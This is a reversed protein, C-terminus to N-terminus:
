KWGSAAANLQSTLWSSMSQLKSLALEMASFRALMVEKKRDLRANMQDIRDELDSIRETLSDQKFAVYGEYSDTINFLARDFLEAVGVTLKINGASGTASGTYRIVLGAINAEGKNGTLTQGSGTAAEGNITGSVDLGNETAAQTINVAYEGAKTYNTSYIYEISGSDSTGNACFLQQIDNFNTELLGHLKDSDISLKGDDDLNIGAMGLISCESSVGWIPEVLISSLDAKVSSLTGDGFLIGGTTEEEKDYTQQESIYSSVANYADVFSQIKEEIASLDREINVTITTSADDNTLKLTVGSLVDDIINDKSTIGVGDITLSADQGAIIENVIGEADTWGLLQLLDTASGDLSIGELGTSKSTLILRNDNTSYSIISATVGSNANNIRNRIDDLGDTESITIAKGNIIIDGSYGTGLADSFSSFSSSSIKQATAINNIKISYTGPSAYSSASVSLLDEAEVSTNDSTMSSTFVNFDDPESLDQAATKLSLLTSNFSQWASLQEEYKSKQKEVLTVPAKDIEILQDIMSQWDFGSSLGSVSNTSAM